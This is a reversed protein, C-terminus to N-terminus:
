ALRKVARLPLVAREDLLPPELHFDNLTPLESIEVSEPLSRLEKPSPLAPNITSQKEVQKRFTTFMEPIHHQDFPLDDLHYLTHGWFFKYSVGLDNLVTQLATEVILEESTVEQHYYVASIDLQQVLLPIVQEPKGYRVILNSGLLQLSRRLDAVSEWLFKARFAGTKPFGFVTQGFQRPDFCYVPVVIARQNLAQHLPEHDHLRLDNRYWILIRPEMAMASWDLFGAISVLNLIKVNLYM